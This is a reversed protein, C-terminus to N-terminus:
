CPPPLSNARCSRPSVCVPGAADHLHRHGVCVAPQHVREAGRAHRQAVEDLHRGDRVHQACFVVAAAGPALASAVSGGAAVAALAARLEGAFDFEEVVVDALQRFGDGSIYPLSHARAGQTSPHAPALRSARQPSPSSVFVAFLDAHAIAAFPDLGYFRGGADGRACADPASIAAAAAAAAATGSTATVTVLPEERGADHHVPVDARLAPARLGLPFIQLSISLVVVALVAGALTTCTARRRSPQVM